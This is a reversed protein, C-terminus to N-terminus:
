PTLMKIIQSMDKIEELIDITRILEESKEPSLLNGSFAVCERFKERIEDNSLPNQQRGKPYEASLSYRRGDYLRIEVIAAGHDGGEKSVRSDIECHIKAVLSLVSSDCVSSDTFHELKSSRRVLANAVAYAANFQADVQPKDRVVFPEGVIDYASSTLGITIEVVQDPTIDHEKVLQLTIWTPSNVLNGSPYPKFSVNAAGEFRRGLEQTLAEAKVEEVSYLNLFGHKGNIVNRAGTIGGKAWIASQVGARSTLGQALRVALAGDVNTQYTGVAQTLAIGLADRMEVGNLKLIKGAIAAAGLVMCIGTPEFKRRPIAFHLRTALDDGLIIATLFEKGTIDGCLEAMALATPIATAGTHVGGPITVDYDQARAMISNVLAANHAPVKGGYALITSEKKGGWDNVLNVITKCGAANFGAVLVGLTDLIEMKTTQIAERPIDEYTINGLNHVFREITDM